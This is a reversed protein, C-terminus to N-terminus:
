RPLSFAARSLRLQVDIKEAIVLADGVLAVQDGLAFLMMGGESTL